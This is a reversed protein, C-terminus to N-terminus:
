QESASRLRKATSRAYSFVNRRHASWKGAKDCADGITSALQRADGPINPVTKGQALEGLGRPTSLALLHPTAGTRIQRNWIAVLDVRIHSRKKHLVEGIDLGPNIRNRDIM